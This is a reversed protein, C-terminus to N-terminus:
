NATHSILLENGTAPQERVVGVGTAYYKFEVKGDALTEKVKICNNYTATRMSLWILWVAM